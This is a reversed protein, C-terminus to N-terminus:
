AAAPATPKMARRLYLGVAGTGLLLAALVVFGGLIPVQALLAVLFIGGVAAGIKRGVTTPKDPQLRGLLWDGLAVAAAAYGIMLLSLYAAISLLGLPAGILTILLFVSVVPTLVLLALGLLASIGPRSRLVQGAGAFFGPLTPVLLVVVLMLGLTWLWFIARGFGRAFGRPVETVPIRRVGGIVQAAPDRGLDSDSRYRLEGAIRTQPGLEVRGASVEADGSIPGNIYIEGSAAQLYGGIAGSVRTQGAGITVGGDIRGSPAIEVEGGALRANRAVAGTVTVRGGAAYLNQAIGGNLRVEGGALVADGSVSGDLAVNRGAALVDGAFSGTVNVNEGAAFRDMGLSRNFERPVQDGADQALAPLAITFLCTIAIAIFSRPM